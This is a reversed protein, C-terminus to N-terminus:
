ACPLGVPNQAYNPHLAIDFLWGEGLDVDLGDIRTLEHLADPAGTVLESKTGDPRVIRIGRTKETVLLSGNPLPAISYPLPDLDEAVVELRFSHLETEITTTPVVLETDYNFSAYNVNARSELVYLALGKIENPSFVGRWEPMGAAEAGNTISAVVQAVSAGNKLDDRLSTGQATGALDGAHCVACHEQYRIRSETVGSYATIEQQAFSASGLVVSVAAILVKSQM